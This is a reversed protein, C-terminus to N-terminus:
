LRSLTDVWLINYTSFVDWRVILISGGMKGSEPHWLQSLLKKFVISVSVTWSPCIISPHGWDKDHAMNLDQRSRKWSHPKHSQYIQILALQAAAELTRTYLDKQVVDIHGRWNSRELHYLYWRNLSAQYPHTVSSASPANTQCEAAELYQKNVLPDRNRLPSEISPLMGKRYKSVAKFASINM